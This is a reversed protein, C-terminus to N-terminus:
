YVNNGSLEAPLSDTQLVPSGPQIGPNPLDGPSPFPEGSWYEPTSSYMSQLTWPTVFLRCWQAVQVKMKAM